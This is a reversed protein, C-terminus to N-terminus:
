RAYLQRLPTTAASVLMRHLLPMSTQWAQDSRITLTGAAFRMPNGSVTHDTGLDINRLDTQRADLRLDSEDFLASARHFLEGPDDTFREYALRQRPTGLAGCIQFLVNHSTWRSIARLTGLREMGTGSEPRTVRKSWSHAVGRPDRVVHLLRIRHSPMARLLFLYSPHKSSDILIPPGDGDAAVDGIAAYLRDLVELLRRRADRFSRTALRPAILWPIRRNRDVIRRDLRLREIDLQDWGGFALRGVDNWFPCDHFAQGCGCLEDGLVSRDWLHVLEGLAITHNSTALTRELLTTGSRGVAGIYVVDSM